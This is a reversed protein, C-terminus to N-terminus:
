TPTSSPKFPFTSSPTSSTPLVALPIDHQNAWQQWHQATQQLFFHTLANCDFAIGSASQVRAAFHPELAALAIWGDSTRYFNYGPHGGALLGSGRTLGHRFPGTFAQAAEELSVVQRHGHGTQGALRLCAFAATVAREAGALDALLTTPMQPPSALGSAAIYTLDHGAEDSQTSSVIAVHSLKPFRNSLSPWDLQLRALASERHSTLLIDASALLADFAARDADLKLNLTRVDIGRHLEDYYSRAYQAMPDGGLSLPPEVKTVQAGFDALRRACAPGPLNPAISVVRIDQLPLAPPATSVDAHDNM